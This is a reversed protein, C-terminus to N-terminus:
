SSEVTSSSKTTERATRLRTVLGLVALLAVVLGCPSLAWITLVKDDLSRNLEFLGIAVLVGLSLGGVIRLQKRRKAALLAHHLQKRREAALSAHHVVSSDTSTQTDKPPDAALLLTVISHMVWGVMLFFSAMLLKGTVSDPVAREVQRVLPENSGLEALSQLTVGLITAALLFFGLLLVWEVAKRSEKLKAALDDVERKLDQSRQSTKQLESSFWLVTGQNFQDHILRPVIPARDKREEGVVGMFQISALCTRDHVLDIPEAGLNVAHFHLRGDVGKCERRRYGPDIMSGSFLVLGKRALDNKISLRATVDEPMCFVERTRVVVTDGPRVRLVEGQDPPLEVAVEYGAARLRSPDFTEQEILQGDAVRRAIECDSFVGGNPM